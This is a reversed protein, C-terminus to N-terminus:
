IKKNTLHSLLDFKFQQSNECLDVTYNAIFDVIERDREERVQQGYSLLLPKINEELIEEFNLEGVEGSNDAEENFEKIIKTCVGQIKEEISSPHEITGMTHTVIGKEKCGTCHKKDKNLPLKENAILPKDFFYMCDDCSCLCKGENPCGMIDNGCHKNKKNM